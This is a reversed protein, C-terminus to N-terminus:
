SFRWHFGRWIEGSARGIYRGSSRWIAVIIFLCYALYLVVIGIGLTMSRNTTVILVVVILIRLLTDCLVGWVWFTVPLSIEGRWLRVVYLQSEQNVRASVPSLWMEDSDVQDMSADATVALARRRIEGLVIRQGSETYEALRTSAALLEEDSKQRWIEEPTM